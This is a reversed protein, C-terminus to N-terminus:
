LAKPSPISHKVIYSFLIDALKFCAVSVSTEFENLGAIKPDKLYLVSGIQTFHHFIVLEHEIRDITLMVLNNNQLINTVYVDKDKHDLLKIVKFSLLKETEWDEPTTYYDFWTSKM